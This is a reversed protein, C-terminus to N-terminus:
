WLGPIATRCEPCTGNLLSNEIVHYGNRRIVVTSCSPCHTHQREGAMSSINGPYVYQLGEELGTEAARLVMRAPTNGMGHMKYDEHFATVHWPITPSLSRIWQAIERMEGEDDNMGPVVLTVIEVWIGSHVLRTITDTVAALTGGLSRYVRDQFSKLDVKYADLFPVLFDLVEPTGNGNSVFSTLLDQARAAQFIERSWEATILPENYTSTLMAAGSEKAHSVIEEPTIRHYSGTAKADRLVQSTNWNQCYACHFDCGLMGFSLARCGPLVHYFPKKEVPDNQLGAVYGYPVRLEGGENFRVKCVGSRGDPIQCRHGCAVCRVRQGGTSHWLEGCRSHTLDHASLSSSIAQSM